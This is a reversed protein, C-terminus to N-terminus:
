RLRVHHQVHRMNRVTIRNPYPSPNHNSNIRYRKKSILPIIEYIKYLEFVVSANIFIKNGNLHIEM